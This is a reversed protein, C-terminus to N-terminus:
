CVSLDIGTAPNTGCQAQGVYWEWDSNIRDKYNSSLESLRGEVLNEVSPVSAHADIYDFATDWGSEKFAPSNADYAPLSGIFEPQARSFAAQMSGIFNATVLAAAKNGATKPIGIFNTNSITGEDLVYSSTSSPYNGSLINSGAHNPDYALNLYTRNQAYMSNVVTSSPPFQNPTVLSGSISKLAVFAPAARQLYLAEDVDSGTLFDTWSGGQAAGAYHYFISRVFASGTFDVTANSYQFKGPNNIIWQIIAPVTRPPDPLLQTQHFFVIQATNYPMECGQTSVGFDFAISPSFWNYHKSSPLKNAWNCYAFGEDKLNRFNNGNIWIMDVSSTSTGSTQEDRLRQVAEPAGSPDPNRVVRIQYKALMRPALWNDVWNNYRAGGNWMWFNVQSGAAALELDMFTMHEMGPLGLAGGTATSASSSQFASFMSMFMTNTYQRWDTPMDDAFTVNKDGIRYGITQGQEVIFQIGNTDAQIRIPSQSQAQTNAALVAAVLVSTALQFAKRRLSPLSM